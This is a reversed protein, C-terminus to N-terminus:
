EQCWHGYGSIGLEKSYFLCAEPVPSTSQFGIDSRCSAYIIPLVFFPMTHQKKTTQKKKKKGAM